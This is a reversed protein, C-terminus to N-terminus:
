NIDAIHTEIDMPLLDVCGGTASGPTTGRVRVVAPETDGIGFGGSGDSGLEIDIDHTPRYTVSGDVGCMGAAACGRAPDGHWVVAVVGATRVRVELNSAAQAPPSAAAAIAVAVVAVVAVRIRM